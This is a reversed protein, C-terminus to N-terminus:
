FQEFDEKTVYKNWKEVAFNMLVPKAQKFAPDINMAGGGSDGALKTTGRIAYKTVGERMILKLVAPSVDSRCSLKYIFLSEAVGNSNLDTIFLADKVFGAYLDFSCNREFDTIKWLLSVKDDKKVFDYAYVEADFSGEGEVKSKEKSPIKGTQTLLLFNEGNSDIWRAGKVIKGQYRIEGPLSRADFSMISIKGQSRTSANIGAGSQNAFGEERGEAQQITAQIVLSLLTLITLHNILRM